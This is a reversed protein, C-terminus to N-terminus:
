WCGKGDEGGCPGGAGGPGGLAVGKTQLAAQTGEGPGRLARSLRGELAEMNLSKLCLRRSPHSWPPRFIIM